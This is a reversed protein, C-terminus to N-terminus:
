CEQGSGGATTSTYRITNMADMAEVVLYFVIPEWVPCYGELVSIMKTQHVISDGLQETLSKIGKYVPSRRAMSQFFFVSLLRWWMGYYALYFHSYITHIIQVLSDGGRTAQSDFCAGNDATRFFICATALTSGYIYISYEYVQYTYGRYTNANQLRKQEQYLPIVGGGGRRRRTLLEFGVRSRIM